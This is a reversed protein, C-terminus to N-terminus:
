NPIHSDYYLIIAIIIRLHIKTVNLNLPEVFYFSHSLIILEVLKCISPWRSSLREGNFTTRTEFINFYFMCNTSYFIFVRVAFALPLAIFLVDSAATLSWWGCRRVMVVAVFGRGVRAFWRNHTGCPLARPPTPPHDVDWRSRDSLKSIHVNRGFVLELWAYAASQYFEAYAQRVFNVLM